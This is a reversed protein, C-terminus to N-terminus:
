NGFLEQVGITIIQIINSPVPQIVTVGSPVGIEPVEVPLGQVTPRQISVVPRERRMLRGNADRRPIYAVTCRCQITNGASGNPDGPFQLEEGGSFFPREGPVVQGDLDWHDFRSKPPRRVRIDMASIWEKDLVLESQQAEMEAAANAARVTETRVVLRAHHRNYASMTIAKAMQEVTWGEEIGQSLTKLVVQKHTDTIKIVAKNLLNEDFYRQIERTLRENVGMTPLSRLKRSDRKIQQRIFRAHKLGVSIYLRQLVDMIPGITIISDLMAQADRIGNRFMYDVFAQDWDRYVKLIKSYWFKEQKIQFANWTRYYARREKNTM